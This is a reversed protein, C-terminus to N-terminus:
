DEHDYYPDCIAILHHLAIEEANPTCLFWDEYADLAELKPLADAYLRTLEKIDEANWYWEFGRRDAIHGWMTSVSWDLFPNRANCRITQYLTRLGNLPVPLRSLANLIEAESWEAIVLEEIGEFGNRSWFAEVTALEEDTAHDLIVLSRMIVFFLLQTSEPFNAWSDYDWAVGRGYLPIFAEGKILADGETILHQAVGMDLPFLCENITSILCFQLGVLSQRDDPLFGFVEVFLRLTNFYEIADGASEQILSLYSPLRWRLLRNTCGKYSHPALKKHM